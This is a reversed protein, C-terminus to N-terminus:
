LKKMIIINWLATAKSLACRTLGKKHFICTTNSLLNWIHKESKSCKEPLQIFPIDWMKLIPILQSNKIAVYPKDDSKVWHYMALVTDMGSIPPLESKVGLSKYYDDKSELPLGTYNNVWEATTKDKGSLKSKELHIDCLVNLLLKHSVVSLEKPYFVGDIHYGQADIVACIKDFKKLDM